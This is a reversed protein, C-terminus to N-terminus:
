DRLEPTQILNEWGDRPEDWGNLKRFREVLELAVTSDNHQSFTVQDFRTTLWAAFGYLAESPSSKKLRTM